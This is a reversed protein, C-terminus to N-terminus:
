GGAKWLYCRSSRSTSRQTQYRLGSSPVAALHACRYQLEVTSCQSAATDLGLYVGRRHGCALDVVRRVLVKMEQQGARPLYITGPGGGAPVAWAPFGRTCTDTYTPSEM